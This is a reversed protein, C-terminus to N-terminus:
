RSKVMKPPIRSIQAVEEVVFGYISKLKLYLMRPVTEKSVTLRIAYFAGLFKCRELSIQERSALTLSFIGSCGKEILGDIPELSQCLKLSSYEKSITL